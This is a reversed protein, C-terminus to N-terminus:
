KNAANLAKVLSKVEEKSDLGTIQFDRSLRSNVTPAILCRDKVVVAMRDQGLNMKGTANRLKKGGETTLKVNIVGIQGTARALQVNSAEIISGRKLLLPTAMKEGEHDTSTMLYLKYGPPTIQQGKQVAPALEDSEPHVEKLALLVQPKSELNSEGKAAQVELGLCCFFGLFLAKVTVSPLTRSM